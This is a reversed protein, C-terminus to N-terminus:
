TLRVKPNLWGQLLDIALNVIVVLIATVIVVGMVVPVDGRSTAAVAAQGLGPLSFVQEVIVAGGFVVVFQLGLVGLAPGAANRLAHVYVVRTVPLGRSRLTRIYDMRLVDIMSGRVQQAVAATAGIALAIVPLTITSLWGSVSTALPIYGTAPFWRLVLGFVTALALAFLFGPVAAAVVSAVQVSRDTWGRRGAALAGLVIALIGSLVIAGITISLTVPVRALLTEAVPEGTFWSRGLDGTVARSVWEGFQVALPRDIGLEAAKRAVIEDSATQGVINRATDQAGLYLLFFALVCLTAVIVVGAAVRRLIFPIM